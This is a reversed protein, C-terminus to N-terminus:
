ESESALEHFGVEFLAVIASMAQDADSGEISLELESGQDAGLTLLNLMSKCDVAQGDKSILVSSEFCSAAEVLLQVARLHMGKPNKVQVTQQLPSTM